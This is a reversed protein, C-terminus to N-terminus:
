NPILNSAVYRIFDKVAPRGIIKQLTRAKEAQNYDYASLKSKNNEVTTILMNGTENRDATDFYYLRRTAEKFKLIKKDDKHM